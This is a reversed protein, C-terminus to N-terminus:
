SEIESDLTNKSSDSPVYIAKNFASFKLADTSKMLNSFELFSLMGDGDKDVSKIMETIEQNPISMDFDYLVEEMEIATIFGDGNKDFVRFAERIDEEEEHPFISKRAMMIAFEQFNITGKGEQDVEHIMGQIESETPDEGLSLMVDELEEASIFGDNNRDFM